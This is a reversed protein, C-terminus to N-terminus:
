NKTWEPNSSYVKDKLCGWFFSDRPNLDPSRSPWFIVASLETGSSMPCLRTHATALDQQFWGYPREATLEPFFQGLIVQVYSECNIIENYFFTRRCKGASGYKVYTDYLFVRQE